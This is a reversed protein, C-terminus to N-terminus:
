DDPPFIPGVPPPLFIPRRDVPIHRARWRPSGGGAPVIATEGSPFRLIWNGDPTVGVLQARVSGRPLPPMASEDPHYQRPRTRKANTSERKSSASTRGRNTEQSVAATSDTQKRSEPRSQGAADGPSITAEARAGEQIPKQEPSSDTTSASEDDPGETPPEPEATEDVAVLQGPASASPSPSAAVLAATASPQAPPPANQNVSAAVPSPATSATPVGVSVGIADKDHNRNLILRVPTPLLAAAVIAFVFLLAAIALALRPVRRRPEEAGTALVKDQFSARPLKTSTTVVPVFPIGFKHALLQRREVKLLCVRLEQAFLVPDHPREDPNQHLTQAILNRLPRAFRKTQRSRPEASYFAGTLLFCMTAGLSYLESRFDVAGNQLQEPSAFESIAPEGEIDSDFNASALGFNMVKILPWSGEWTQGSVIMLNSPQIAPHTLGHFSAASLASMVQLAVRLVADAPLPGHAAIWSAVTEGHPYEWVFVFQDDELGFAAMKVINIHDLLLSAQAKAEFEKRTQPDVSTKPLLALAVPAGCRLDTAKYVTVPGVRNIEIPLGDAQVCVRYHELFFTREM